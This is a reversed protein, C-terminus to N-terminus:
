ADRRVGCEVSRPKQNVPDLQGKTFRMHLKKQGEDADLNSLDERTVRLTVYQMLMESTKCPPLAFPWHLVIIIRIVYVRTVFLKTYHVATRASRSCRITYGVCTPPRICSHQLEATSETSPVKKCILSIHSRLGIGSSPMKTHSSIGQATATM